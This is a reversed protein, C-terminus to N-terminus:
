SRSRNPLPLCPMQRRAVTYGRKALANWLSAFMRKAQREALPHRRNVAVVYQTQEVASFPPDYGCARGPEPDFVANQAWVRVNLSKADLVHNTAPVPDVTRGVSTSLGEEKLMSALMPTFGDAHRLPVRVYMTTNPNDPGYDCSALAMAMAMVWWLKPRTQMNSPQHWENRIDAIPRFRVNANPIHVAAIV